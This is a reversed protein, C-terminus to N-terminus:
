QTPHLWNGMEERPVEQRVVTGSALLMTGKVKNQKVKTQPFLIDFLVSCACVRINEDHSISTYAQFTTALSIFIRLYTNRRHNGGLGIVTKEELYTRGKSMTVCVVCLM